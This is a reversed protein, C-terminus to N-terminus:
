EAELVSYGAPLVQFGQAIVEEAVSFSVTLRSHGEDFSEVLTVELRPERPTVTALSTSKGTVARPPCPGVYKVSGNIMEGVVDAPPPFLSCFIMTKESGLWERLQTPLEATLDVILIASCSAQEMEALTLRHWDVVVMVERPNWELLGEKAELDQQIQWAILTAVLSKGSGVLGQLWVKCGPRLNFRSTVEELM